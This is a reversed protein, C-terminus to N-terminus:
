THCIPTALWEFMIVLNDYAFQQRLRTFRGSDM